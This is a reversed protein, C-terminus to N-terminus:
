TFNRKNSFRKKEITKILAIEEETNMLLSDWTAVDKNNHLIRTTRNGECVVLESLIFERTLGIANRFVLVEENYKIQWTKQVIMIVACIICAIVFLFCISYQETAHEELIATIGFSLSFSM